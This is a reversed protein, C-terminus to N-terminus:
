AYVCESSLWVDLISSKRFNSLGIRLFHKNGTWPRTFIQPLTLRGTSECKTKNSYKYSLKLYSKFVM